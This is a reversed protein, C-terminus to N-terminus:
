DLRFGKELAVLFCGFFSAAQSLHALAQTSSKARTVSPAGSQLRKRMIPKGERAGGGATDASSKKGEGM